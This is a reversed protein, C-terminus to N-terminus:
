ESASSRGRGPRTAILPHRRIGRDTFHRCSRASSVKLTGCVTVIFDMATAGAGAIESWSKSRVGGVDYGCEALVDLTM